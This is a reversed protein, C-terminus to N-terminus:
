SQQLKDLVRGYVYRDSNLTHLLTHRLGTAKNRRYQGALYTNHDILDIAVM